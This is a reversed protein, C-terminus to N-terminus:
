AAAAVGISPEHADDAHRGNALRFVLLALAVGVLVLVGGIVLTWRAGLHEGIWGIFPSGLPTGGMVVTMYLAMVRGRLAPDSTIQMTANSSNLLTITSFGIVPAFLAFAVYSPLLGAVIEAVGFGAAAVFLLRIRIRPRRAALLAGALSGVALCSGLIGFEGAGKGFVQTAMLASTVQFNMGFTGAFFVLVLIMLMKPQSRVYHMGELLMGPSRGRLEPSRLLGADMRRLQAIVAFYSIGNLLIVWGSATAGGGLVGILLGALGPGVLRATNFAASNLGVANTLDDPGVMESVFSQRAPADFASAIGFTFALAYVMWVEAHGSVAIAGLLLSSFAMGLQTLQLMTRKSFRDAVVGAYPSLMLVPLFQLGTTIGLETGGTGPLSLVLWDQAVRQMWTGTNSVVSGALYLRYNRNHLARFTPSM